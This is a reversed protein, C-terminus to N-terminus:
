KWHWGTPGITANAPTNWGTESASFTYRFNRSQALVAGSSIEAIIPQVVRGVLSCMGGSTWFVGNM